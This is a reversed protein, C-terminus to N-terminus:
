GTAKVCARRARRSAVRLGDPLRFFADSDLKKLIYGQAADLVRRRTCLSSARGCTPIAARAAEGLEGVQASPRDNQGRKHLEQVAQAKTNVYGLFAITSM